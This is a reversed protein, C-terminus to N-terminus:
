AARRAKTCAFEGNYLRAPKAYAAAAQKATSYTGLYLLRGSIRIRAQWGSRRRHVGKFGTVNHVVVNCANQRRSCERLNAIRNDGRKRNRHDIDGRPHRGHVWLWALRHAYCNAGDVTIVRYGGGHWSGAERGARAVGCRVRWHFRGRGTIPDYRLLQKLRKQTIRRRGRGRSAETRESVNPM